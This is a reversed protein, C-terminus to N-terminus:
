GAGARSAWRSSVVSRRCAGPCAVLARRLTPCVCPLRKGGGAMRCIPSAPWRGTSSALSKANALGKPTESSWRMSPPHGTVIASKPSLPTQNLIAILFNQIKVLVGPSAPRHRDLRLQFSALRTSWAGVASAVLHSSALQCSPHVAQSRPFPKKRVLRKETQSPTTAITM